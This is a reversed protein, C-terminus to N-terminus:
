KKKIVILQKYFHVFEIQGAYETRYEPLITEYNLQDALAKFYYMTTGIAGPIPNGFYNERWYSTHCDEVFYLGGSRLKPFLIEFSKITLSNIHSADDIIIDFEGLEKLKKEDDQSCQVIKLRDHKLHSKDHIDVGTILGCPFFDLWMKLSAGGKVTDYGGIGLELLDVLRSQWKFLYQEYIDAYGHHQSSKDTGHKIALDNLM